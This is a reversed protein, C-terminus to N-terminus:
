KNNSDLGFTARIRAGIANYQAQMSEMMIFQRKLVEIEMQVRNKMRDISDQLSAIQKDYASIMNGLTGTSLTIDRLYTDLNSKITSLKATLQTKTEILGTSSSGDNSLVQDLKSTNLSLKGTERDFRLIDSFVLDQVERFISNKIQNLTYEGSLKGGKGTETNIKDVLANYSNVFNTLTQRLPDNSQGVTVTTSGVSKATFSLGEIVDDFQNTPRGVTIGNITISANQATQVNSFGGLITALNGTDSFSMSYDTGTKTSSIVLKYQPNTTSGINIISARINMNWTTAEQNIKDVLTQLSYTNDYAINLNEGNQSITLTGPILASVPLGAISGIPTNKDSLSNGSAVIHSKALQNVTINYIGIQAKTPYTISSSVINQNDVNVSKANLTSPDNFNSIATRMNNIINRVENIVAKKQEIQKQRDQMIFIQQSKLYQIQQLVSNYDFGGVLGTVSINGNM